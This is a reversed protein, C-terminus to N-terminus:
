KQCKMKTLRRHSVAQMWWFANGEPQQPIDTVVSLLFADDILIDPNFPHTGRLFYYNWNYILTCLGELIIWRDDLLPLWQGLPGWGQRDWFDWPLWKSFMTQGSALAKLSWMTTQGACDATNGSGGVFFSETELSFQFLASSMKKALFLLVRKKRNLHLQMQQRCCFWMHFVVGLGRHWLTLIFFTIVIVLLHQKWRNLNKLIDWQGWM